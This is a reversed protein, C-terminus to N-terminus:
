NPKNVRFVAAHWDDIIQRINDTDCVDTLKIAGNEYIYNGEEDLEPARAKLMTGGEDQLEQLQCLEFYKKRIEYDSKFVANETVNIVIIRRYDGAGLWIEKTAEESLRIYLNRYFKM